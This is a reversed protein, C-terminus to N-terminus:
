DIAIIRLMFPSSSNITLSDNYYIRNIIKRSSYRCSIKFWNKWFYGVISLQHQTFNEDYYDSGDDFIDCGYTACPMIISTLIRNCSFLSRRYSSSLKSNVANLAKRTHQLHQRPSLTTSLLVGLYCFNKVFEIKDNRYRLQDGQALPGGNKLKM